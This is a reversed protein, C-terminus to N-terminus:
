TASNRRSELLQKKYAHWIDYAMYVNWIDM